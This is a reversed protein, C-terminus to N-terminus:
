QILGKLETIFAAANATATALAAAAGSVPVCPATPNSPPSQTSWGCYAEDATILANEAAVARNISTCATQSPNATCTTQYQAQAAVIMGQLAAATNRANSAATNCTFGCCALAAVLITAIIRLKM